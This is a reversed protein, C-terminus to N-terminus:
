RPVLGGPLTVWLTLCPLPNFCFRRDHSSYHLGMWCSALRVLVGCRLRTTRAQQMALAAKVDILPPMRKAM